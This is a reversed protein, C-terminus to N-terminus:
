DSVTPGPTAPADEASPDRPGIFVIQRVPERDPPALMVLGITVTDGPNPVEIVRDLALIACLQAADRRQPDESWCLTDGEASVDAVTIQSYVVENNDSLPNGAIGVWVGTMVLAGVILGAFLVGVRSGAERRPIYEDDM